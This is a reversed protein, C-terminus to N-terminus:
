GAPPRDRRVRHVTDIARAADTTILTPVAALARLRGDDVERDTEFVELLAASFMLHARCEDWLASLRGEASLAAEAAVLLDVPGAGPVVAIARLLQKVDRGSGLSAAVVRANALNDRLEDHVMRRVVDAHGAAGLVMAKDALKLLKHPAGGSVCHCLRSLREPVDPVRDALLRESMPFAPDPPPKGPDLTWAQRFRELTLAAVMPHAALQHHVAALSDFAGPEDALSSAVSVATRDLENDFVQLITAAYRLYIRLELRLRALPTDDGGVAPANRLLMAPAPNAICVQVMRVFEAVDAGAGIRAAAEQLSAAKRRLEEAVLRETVEALTPMVDPGALGAMNRAVRILERPLGGSLCHCLCRFPETMGTVRKELVATADALNLYGVRVIEDFASDFADRFALGRREFTTLAEESVSVLFQCGAVGFVGKIENVFRHADEAPEMKDLEDIGIVVSPSDAELKPDLAATLQGIFGTLQGVLEPYTLPREALQTSRNRALETKVPLTLKGSWGSTHTQLFRIRGLDRRARAVLLDRPTRRPTRVLLAGLEGRFTSGPPKAKLWAHVLVMAILGVTGGSALVVITWAPIDGRNALVALRKAMTPPGAWGVHAVLWIIATVLAFGAWCALRVALKRKRRQEEEEVLLEVAPKRAADGSRRTFKRIVERCLTSHLHLIFDRPEYRVPASVTVAVQGPRDHLQRSIVTSKGSGRPGALGVAGTRIRHGAEDFRQVSLTDVVFDDNVASRLGRDDTITLGAWKFPELARNFVDRAARRVASRVTREWQARLVPELSSARRADASRGFVLEVAGVISAAILGVVTIIWSSALNVVVAGLAAAVATAMVRRTRSGGDPKALGAQLRASAERVVEQVVPSNQIESALVGRDLGAVTIARVAESSELEFKILQPLLVTELEKALPSRDRETDDVADPPPEPQATVPSLGWADRFGALGNEDSERHSSVLKDFSGPWNPEATARRFLSEDAVDAFVERLTRCYVQILQGDSDSVMQEVRVFEDILSDVSRGLHIPDTAARKLRRLNRPLGDSLCYLFIMLREDLEPGKARLFQISDRLDLGSVEVVEDARSRLIEVDVDDSAALVCQCGPVESIVLVDILFKELHESPAIRDLRDFMVRIPHGATAVAKVQRQVGSASPRRLQPVYVGAPVADSFQDSLQRLFEDREYRVPPQILLSVPREPLCKGLLATKGIGQPGVLAVVGDPHRKLASEFRNQLTKAEEAANLETM